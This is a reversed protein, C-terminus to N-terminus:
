IRQFYGSERKTSYYVIPNIGVDILPQINLGLFYGCWQKDGYDSPKDATPVYNELSDLIVIDKTVSDMDANMNIRYTYKGGRQSLRRM